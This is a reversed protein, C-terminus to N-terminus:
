FSQYSLARGVVIRASGSALQDLSLSRMLACGQGTPTTGTTFLPSRSPTGTSPDGAADSAYLLGPLLSLLLALILAAPLRERFVKAPTLGPGTAAFRFM